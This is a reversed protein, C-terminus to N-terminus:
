GRTSNGPQPSLLHSNNVVGTRSAGGIARSAGSGFRSEGRTSFGRGAGAAGGACAGALAAALVLPAVAGGGGRRARPHPERGTFLTSFTEPVRWTTRPTLM